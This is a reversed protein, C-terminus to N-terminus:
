VGLLKALMDQLVHETLHELVTKCGRDCNPQASLMQLGVVVGTGVLLVTGLDSEKSRAM